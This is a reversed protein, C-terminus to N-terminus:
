EAERKFFKLSRGFIAAVCRILRGGPDADRRFGQARRPWDPFAKSATPIKQGGSFRPGLFIGM